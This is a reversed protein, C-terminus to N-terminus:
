GEGEEVAVVKFDTYMITRNSLEILLLILIIFILYSQMLNATAGHGVQFAPMTRALLSFRIDGYGEQMLEYGLFHFVFAAVPGLTRNTMQSIVYLLMGILIAYLVALVFTQGFAVFVFLFPFGVTVGGSFGVTIMRTRAYSKWSTRSTIMRLYGSGYEECFRSSYGLSPFVAAFPGFGSLAMADIIIEHM